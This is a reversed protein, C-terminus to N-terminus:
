LWQCGINKKMAEVAEDDANSYIVVQTDANGSGGAQCGTMAMTGTFVAAAMMLAGVKKLNMTKRRRGSKRIVERLKLQM